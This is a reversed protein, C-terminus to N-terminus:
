ALRKRALRRWGVVVATVSFAVGAACFAVILTSRLAPRERLAPLDWTHLTLYLWQYARRAPDLVEILRGSSADVHLWRKGCIARVLPMAPSANTGRLPDGTSVHTAAACNADVARVAADIRELPVQVDHWGAAAIRRMGQRDSSRVLTANGLAFWEIETAAPEIRVAAPPDLRGHFRRLEADDPQGSPFLRGHDMSLWGSLLWTLVFASCALGLVHHWGMWGRYPTRAARLRVVGLVAGVAAGALALLSLWWVTEDWVSWHKRLATPYIWHVVSGVANWLREGRNTDLVVEGTRSSVYLETGAPDNLAIRHLPRHVDYGNPVTWQDHMTPGAAEIRVAEIRRAAAHAVAAEIAADSTIRLPAATGADLASVDGDIRTVVYVPRNGAMALRMRVADQAGASGLVEAPSLVPGALEALGASREAETLRPFPVFHMVIGSTFWAAVFLCTAIGAWRHFTALLRM